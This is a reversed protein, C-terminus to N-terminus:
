WWYPDHLAPRRERTQNQLPSSQVVAAILSEKATIEVHLAVCLLLLQVGGGKWGILKTKRLSLFPLTSTAAM